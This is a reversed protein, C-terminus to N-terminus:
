PRTGSSPGPTHATPAPPLSISIVTPGGPRSDIQTQGGLLRVREHMGVLGLHGERAARVLTAEPDFGCGDDTVTAEIGGHQGRVSVAVHTAESHERINNLAERILSILAIQQSDTLGTFTGSLETTPAIGTRGTFDDTLELLVDELPKAQLFPSQVLLSIRRLDGDMAVLRAQLDEFRGIVRDRDPHEEMVSMLQRRLLDLDEALLLLDQQPGDHLDFRLRALRRETAALLDQGRRSEAVAGGARDLMVTLTVAAAELMPDVAGGRGPASLVLAAVAGEAPEVVIGAVDRAQQLDLSDDTLIHRALQRARFADSAVRGAKGLTELEGDAGQAWLSAAQSETLARLLALVVKTGQTAPLQFLAPTGLLEHGVLVRPLGTVAEIEAVLAKLRAPRNIVKAATAGLLDQAFALWAASNAQVSADGDRLVLLARARAHARAHRPIPADGSCRVFAREIRELESSRGSRKRRTVELRSVVSGGM